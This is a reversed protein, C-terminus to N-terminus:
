NKKNLSDEASIWKEYLLFMNSENLIHKQFLLGCKNCKVICYDSDMKEKPIRGGYYRDLFSWIKEDSFPYTFILKHNDSKCVPCKDRTIFNKNM